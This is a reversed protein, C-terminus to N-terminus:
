CKPGPSQSLLISKDDSNAGFADASGQLGRAAVPDPQLIKQNQQSIVKKFINDRETPQAVPGCEKKIVPAKVFWSSKNLCQFSVVALM